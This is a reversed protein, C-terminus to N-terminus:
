ENRIVDGYFILGHQSNSEHHDVEFTLIASINTVFKELFVM